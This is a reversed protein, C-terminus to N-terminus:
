SSSTPAAETKPSEAKPTETKSEGATSAAESKDSKPETADTKPDAPKEGAESPDPKRSDNVYWGSGKFVVGVPYMLRKVEGACEPCVKIAEDRMSQFISFEHKCQSCRYGYTPV